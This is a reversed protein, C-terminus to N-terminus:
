KVLKNCYPCEKGTQINSASMKCHNCSKYNHLPSKGPCKNEDKFWMGIMKQKWGRIRNGRTDTWPPDAENYFKFAKKGASELYGNKVFYDIVNKENPTTFRKEKTKKNEKKKKSRVEVHRKKPTVVSDSRLKRVTWNDMVETFKPIFIVVQNGNFEVQWKGSNQNVKKSNEVLETPTQQSNTMLEDHTQQSNQNLKGHTRIYNLCKIIITDQRKHLKKRLYGRSVNLKWGLEPKFERAYIELIGFFVLYGDGGFQNVIDFIFPDDLSDSIHKFWKM